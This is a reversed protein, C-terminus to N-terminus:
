AALAALKEITIKLFILDLARTICRRQPGRKRRATM